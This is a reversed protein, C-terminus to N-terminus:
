SFQVEESEVSILLRLSSGSTWQPTVKGMQSIFLQITAERHSRLRYAADAGGGLQCEPHLTAVTIHPCPIRHTVRALFLGCWGDASGPLSFAGTKGPRGQVM